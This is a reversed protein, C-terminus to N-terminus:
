YLFSLLNGLVQFTGATKLCDSVGDGQCYVDHRSEAYTKQQQVKSIMCVGLESLFLNLACLWVM